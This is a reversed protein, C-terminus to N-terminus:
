LGDAVDPVEPAASPPPVALPAGTNESVRGTFRYSPGKITECTGVVGREGMFACMQSPRLFAGPEGLLKELGVLLQMAGRPDLEVLLITGGPKVVRAFETVAGSQDRFHHFADTVILADFSDDAFPMAEATGVVADVPARDPIYRLMKPSPDLVTVRTQLEAALKTALAGTGGGVDLIRCGEPCPATLGPRLWAAIDSVSDPSWRDAFHGFLPAAWNFLGSM